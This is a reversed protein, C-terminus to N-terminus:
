SGHEIAADSHGRLMVLLYMIRVLPLLRLRLYGWTPLEVRVLM